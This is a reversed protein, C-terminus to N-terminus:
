RRRRRVEQEARMWDEEPSGGQFGRTESYLYAVLEIEDREPMLPLAIAAEATVEVSKAKAHKTVAARKPKPLEVRAPAAAIGNMNSIVSKKRAM